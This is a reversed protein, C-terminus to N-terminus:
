KASLYREVALGLERGVRQYGEQTGAPTNWGTELTVALVSPNTHRYVWTKSMREWNPDYKPGSERLAGKFAPPGRMEMKAGAFFADLNARQADTLIDRPAVFFTCDKQGPDPNHLDLFAALRHAANLEKILNQAAAVSRWHPADSWDRNHDQPKENKGGAGRVVNDVDMIPVIVVAAKRRVAAARPHDSVLWDTFGAAVWSSGTEWAHQRAQVWLSVRDSGAAGPQSVRLAPVPRDELTRCLEFGKAHPCAKEARAILDAAHSPLFPPGWAFWAEAASVKQTYAVAAKGHKVGAETHVWRRDDLSFAARDPLAYGDGAVELTLTEGPQIGTVKFYWWCRWGRDPHNAPRLRIVRATQDIGVVEASGGAFNAEVALAPKAPAPSDAALAATVLVTPLLAIALRHFV